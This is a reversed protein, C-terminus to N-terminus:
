NQKLNKYSLLNSNTFTYTKCLIRGFDLNQIGGFKSYISFIAFVDYNEQMLDDDFTKSTTQKEQWSVKTITGLKM